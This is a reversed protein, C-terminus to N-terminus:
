PSRQLCHAAPLHGLPISYRSLSRLYPPSSFPYPTCLSTTSHTIHASHALIHANTHAQTQVCKRHMSPIGTCAHTTHAHTHMHTQIKYTGVAQTQGQPQLDEHIHADSNQTWLPLTPDCIFQLHSYLMLTFCVRSGLSRFYGTPISLRM